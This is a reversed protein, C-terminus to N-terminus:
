NIADSEKQLNFKFTINDSEIIPKLSPNLYWRKDNEDQIILHKKKLRNIYNNIVFKNKDLALRVVRRARIDIVYLNHKLLTALIDIELDSLGLTFSIATLIAKHINDKNVPIQYEM